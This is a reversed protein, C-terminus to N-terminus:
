IRELERVEMKERCFGVRKSEKECYSRGREFKRIERMRMLPM